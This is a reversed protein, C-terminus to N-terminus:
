ATSTSGGSSSSSGASSSLSMPSPPPPVSIGDFFSNGLSMHASLQGVSFSEPLDSIKMSLSLPMMVSSLEQFFCIQMSESMHAGSELMATSHQTPARSPSLTPFKSTLVQQPAHTVSPPESIPAPSLVPFLTPMDMMGSHQSVPTSQSYSFQTSHGTAQVFPASCLLLLFMTARIMEVTNYCASRCLTYM